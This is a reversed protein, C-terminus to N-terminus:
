HVMYMKLPLLYSVFFIFIFIMSKKGGVVLALIVLKMVIKSWFIKMEGNLSYFLLLNLLNWINLTYILTEAAKHQFM